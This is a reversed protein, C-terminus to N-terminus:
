DAPPLDHNERTRSNWFDIASDVFARKWGVIDYCMIENMYYMYFRGSCVWSNRRHRLNQVNRTSQLGYLSKEKWCFRSKQIESRLFQCCHKRNRWCFVPLDKIKLIFHTARHHWSFFIMWINSSVLRSLYFSQAWVKLFNM